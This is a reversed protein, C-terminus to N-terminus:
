RTGYLTFIIIINIFTLIKILLVEIDELQEINNYQNINRISLHFKFMNSYILKNLLQGSNVHIIWNDIYM